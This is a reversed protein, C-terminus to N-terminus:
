NKESLWKRRAEQLNDRSNKIKDNEETQSESLDEGTWLDEGEDFREAYLEILREKEPTNQQCGGRDHIKPM